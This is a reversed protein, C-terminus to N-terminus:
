VRNLLECLSLKLMDICHTVDENPFHLLLRVLIFVIFRGHGFLLSYQSCSGIIGNFQLVEITQLHCSLRETYASM